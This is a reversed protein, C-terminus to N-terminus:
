DAETRLKEVLQWALATTEETIKAVPGYQAANFGAAVSAIAAVTKPDYGEMYAYMAAGTSCNGCGTPDVSKGYPDVPGCFRTEQPTIVYNGKKGVRFLVMEFPLQRIRDIMRQEDELPIGFLQSAEHANLSWMEAVQAAYEVREVTMGPISLEWMMKLGTKEKMRRLNDWRVRDTGQTTYFAVSDADAARGLEDPKTELYGLRRSYEEPSIDAKNAYSGDEHHIVVSFNCKEEDVMVDACSLGNEELWLKYSTEYDAGAHCVLKCDKTWLRIGELAFFAGGGMNTRSIQGDLSYVTNTVLNGSAIYKAM